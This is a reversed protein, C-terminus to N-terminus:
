GFRPSETGALWDLHDLHADVGLDPQFEPPMALTWAPRQTSRARDRGTLLRTRIRDPHGLDPGTIRAVEIGAARLREERSVDAAHRAASRHVAGDYEVALGCTPDFLDPMAIFQGTLSFVPENILPEPLNLDTMWILRILSEPPSASGDRALTLAQRVRHRGRANGLRDVYGRMRACSTLYAASTMDMAVVGARLPLSRMEEFLAWEIPVCRIGHVVRVEEAPFGGRKVEIGPTARIQEQGVALAVPRVRDGSGGDFYDAGYLRLAAWGTVVGGEPLRDAAEVIRQEPISGDVGSPVFRGRATRRWKPGKSEAPTPGDPSGAAVPWVLKPVREVRPRWEGAM